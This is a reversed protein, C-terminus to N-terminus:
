RDVTKIIHKALTLYFWKTLPKQMTYINVIKISFQLFDETKGFVSEGLQLIFSALSNFAYGINSNPLLKMYINKSIKTM